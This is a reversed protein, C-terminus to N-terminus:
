FKHENLLRNYTEKILKSSAITRNNKFTPHSNCYAEYDDIDCLIDDFYEKSHRDGNYVEDSFRLIHTRAQLAKEEKAQLDLIDVKRVIEDIKKDIDGIILKKIWKVVFTWPDIKIPVLQIITMAGIITIDPHIRFFEFLAAWM